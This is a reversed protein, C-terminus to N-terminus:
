KKGFLKNKLKYGKPILSVADDVIMCDLETNAAKKGLNIGRIVNTEIGTGQQPQQRSRCQRRPGFYRLRQQRPGITCRYTRKIRVNTPALTGRNVREYRAVFTQGNLLRVQKPMALKRLLINDRPM